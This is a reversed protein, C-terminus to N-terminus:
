GSGIWNEINVSIEKFDTRINDEWRNRLRGLPKKGTPKSTLM